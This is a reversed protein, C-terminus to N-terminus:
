MNVSTADINGIVGEDGIASCTSSHTALPLFFIKPWGTFTTSICDSAPAAPASWPAKCAPVRPVVYVADWPNNSIIGFKYLSTPSLSGPTTWTAALAIAVDENLIKPSWWSTIAALCVPIAISQSPETCSTISKDATACRDAMFACIGKIFKKSPNLIECSNCFISTISLLSRSPNISWSANSLNLLYPNFGSWGTILPVFWFGSTYKWIHSDILLYISAIGSITSSYMSLIFCM